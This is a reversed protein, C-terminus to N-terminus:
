ERLLIKSIKLINLITRFFEILSNNLTVESSVLLTYFSPSPIRSASYDSILKLIFYSCSYSKNIVIQQAAPNALALSCPWSLVQSAVALPFPQTCPVPYCELHSVVATSFSAFCWQFFLPSESYVFTKLPLLNGQLRLHVTHLVM